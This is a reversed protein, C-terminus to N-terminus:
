QQASRKQEARKCRARLRFFQTDAKNRRHGAKKGLDSLVHDVSELHIQVLV